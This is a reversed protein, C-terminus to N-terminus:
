GVPRKSKGSRLGIWTTLDALTQGNPSFAVCMVTGTPGRLALLERGNQADLVRVSRDRGGAAIRSGNPSFALKAPSTESPPCALTAWPRGTAVDWVTM